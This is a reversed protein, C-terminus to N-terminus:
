REAANGTMPSIHRSPRGAAAFRHRADVLIRDVRTVRREQPERAPADDKRVLTLTV